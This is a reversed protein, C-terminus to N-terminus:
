RLHCSPHRRWPKCTGTLLPGKETALPELGAREGAKVPALRVEVEYVAPLVPEGERARDDGDAQHREAHSAEVEADVELAPGLPLYRCCGRYGGDLRLERRDVGDEVLRGHDLQRAARCALLVDLHLQRRRHGAIGM